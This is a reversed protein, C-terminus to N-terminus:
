FNRGPMELTTPSYITRPAATGTNRDASATAPLVSRVPGMDILPRRQAAPRSNMGGITDVFELKPGADFSPAPRAVVPNLERRTPDAIVGILDMSEVVSESPGAEPLDSAVGARSAAPKADTPLGIGLMRRFQEARAEAGGAPKAGPPMTTLNLSDRVLDRRSNNDLADGLTGLVSSRSPADSFLVGTRDRDISLPAFGDFETSGFAQFPQFRPTLEGRNMRENPMPDLKVPSRSQKADAKEKSFYAEWFNLPRDSEGGFEEFDVGSRVGFARFANDKNFDLNKGPDLIWNSRADRLRRSDVGPSLSSPPAFPIARVGDLSSGGMRPADIRRQFMPTPVAVDVRAGGKGDEESDSFTVKGPTSPVEAAWGAGAVAGVVMVLVAGRWGSTVQRNM